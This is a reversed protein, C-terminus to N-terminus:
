RNALFFLFAFLHKGKNSFLPVTKSLIFPQHPLYPMRCSRFLQLKPLKEAWNLDIKISAKYKSDKLFM